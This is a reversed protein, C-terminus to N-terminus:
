YSCAQLSKKGPNKARINAINEIKTCLDFGNFHQPIFYYVDFLPKAVHGSTVM